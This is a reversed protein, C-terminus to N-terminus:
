LIRDRLKEFYKREELSRPTRKRMIEKVIAPLMLPERHELYIINHCFLRIIEVIGLFVGYRNTAFFKYRGETM